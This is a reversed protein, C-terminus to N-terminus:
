FVVFQHVPLLRPLDEVAYSLSMLSAYKLSQSMELGLIDLYSELILLLALYKGVEGIKALLGKAKKFYNVKKPKVEKEAIGLEGERNFFGSSLQAYEATFTEHGKKIRNILKEEELVTKKMDNVM